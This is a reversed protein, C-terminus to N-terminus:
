LKVGKLELNALCFRAKELKVPTEGEKATKELKSIDKKLNHYAKEQRRRKSVRNNFPVGM